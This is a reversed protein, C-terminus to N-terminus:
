QYLVSVGPTGVPPLVMPGPRGALEMQPAGIRLTVNIATTIPVAIDFRSRIFATAVMNATSTGALRASNLPGSTPPVVVTLLQAISSLVNNLLQIDIFYNTVGTSSGAVVYCYQSATWAQGNAAATSNTAEYIIGITAAATTTGSFQLDVYPIGAETGTGVVTSTLGSANALTWFTPL